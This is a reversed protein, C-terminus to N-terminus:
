IDMTDNRKAILIKSDPIATRDVLSIEDVDVNYLRRKPKKRSPM